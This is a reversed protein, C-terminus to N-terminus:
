SCRFVAAVYVRIMILKGMHKDHVCLCTIDITYCSAHIHAYKYRSNTVMAGYSVTSDEM